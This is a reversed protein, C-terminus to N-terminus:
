DGSRAARVSWVSWFDGTPPRYGPERSAKWALATAAILILMSLGFHSMVFGPALHHKVTFGGLVAQCVVAILAIFTVRAYQHPTLSRHRLSRLRTM